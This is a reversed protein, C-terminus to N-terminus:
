YTVTEKTPKNCTGGNTPCWGPTVEQYNKGPVYENGAFTLLFTMGFIAGIIIQKLM